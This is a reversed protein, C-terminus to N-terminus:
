GKGPGESCRTKSQKTRNRKLLLHNERHFCLLLLNLTSTQPGLLIPLNTALLLNQNSISSNRRFFQKIMTTDQWTCLLDFSTSFVKSLFFLNNVKFRKRFCVTSPQVDAMLSPWVEVKGPGPSWLCMLWCSGHIGECGPDSHHCIVDAADTRLPCRIGADTLSCPVTSGDLCTNVWLFLPAAIDCLWVHLTLGFSESWYVRVMSHPWSPNWSLPSM